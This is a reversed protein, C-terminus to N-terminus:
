PNIISMTWPGSAKVDVKYNGTTLVESKKGSFPGVTNAHIVSTKGHGDQLSVSFNGTGAYSMSFMRIGESAATFREAQDGTGRVYISGQNKLSTELSSSVNADFQDTCSYVLDAYDSMKGVYKEMDDKTRSQSASSEPDFCYGVASLLDQRAQVLSSTKPKPGDAIIQNTNSAAMLNCNTYALSQVRSYVINEKLSDMFAVDADASALLDQCTATLTPTPAITTTPPVTPVPTPAPAPAPEDACGSMLTMALILIIFFGPIQWQKM